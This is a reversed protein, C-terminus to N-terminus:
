LDGDFVPWADIAVPAHLHGLNMSIPPASSQNNILSVELASCHYSPSGIGTAIQTLKGERLSSFSPVWSELRLHSFILSGLKKIGIIHYM